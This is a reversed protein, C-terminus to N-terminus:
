ILVLMDVPEAVAELESMWTSVGYRSGDRQRLPVGLHVSISSSKLAHRANGVAGGDIHGEKSCQDPIM